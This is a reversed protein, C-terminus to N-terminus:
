PCSMVSFLPYVVLSGLFNNPIHLTMLNNCCDVEGLLILLILAGCQLQGAVGTPTTNDDHRITEQLPPSEGLFPWIM